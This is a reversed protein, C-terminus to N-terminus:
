KVAFGAAQTVAPLLQPPGEGRGPPPPPLVPFVGGRPGACLSIKNIQPPPAGGGGAGGARALRPGGVPPAAGPPRAGWAGRGLAALRGRRLDGGAAARRERVGTVHPVLGLMAGPMMRVLKELASHAYGPRAAAKARALGNRRRPSGSSTAPVATSSAERAPLKMVPCVRTTSPPPRM